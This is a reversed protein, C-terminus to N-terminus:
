HASESGTEAPSEEDAIIVRIKRAEFFDMYNDGPRTDTIVIDVDELGGVRFQQVTDFKSTDVLLVRKAGRNLLVRKLSADDETYATLGYKLSVAAASIFVYNSYINQYFQEAAPGNLVEYNLEMRGGSVRVEAVGKNACLATPISSTAILVQKNGLLKALECVTTGVDLIVFDGNQILLNAAKAIRRKAEPMKMARQLASQEINIGECLSASGFSRKVVGEKEMQTLDRRVTMESVLLRDAIERVLLPSTEKLMVIIDERRKDYM